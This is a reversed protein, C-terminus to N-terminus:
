AGDDLYLVQVETERLYLIGGLPELRGQRVLRLGVLSTSSETGWATAPNALQRWIRRQDDASVVELPENDDEDDLRVYAVRIQIRQSHRGTAGCWADGLPTSEIPVVEFTRSFEYADQGLDCDEIHVGSYLRGFSVSADSADTILELEDCIKEVIDTLRSM